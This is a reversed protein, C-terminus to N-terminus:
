FGRLVWFISLPTHVMDFRIKSWAQLCLTDFEESSWLSTILAESGQMKKAIDREEDYCFSYSVCSTLDM